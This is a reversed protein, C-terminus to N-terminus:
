CGVAIQKFLYERLPPDDTLSAARTFAEHAEQDRNLLRLLYGRAAWFPQYNVVSRQPLADLAKLGASPNGAQALAVARGVSAGISPAFRVLGEYLL